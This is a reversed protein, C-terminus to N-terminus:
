ILLDLLIYEKSTILTGLKRSLLPVEFCVHAFLLAAFVTNGSGIQYFDWLATCFIGKEGLIDRKELVICVRPVRKLPFFCGKYM